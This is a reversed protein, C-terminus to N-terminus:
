GSKYLSCLIKPYDDEFRKPKAGFGNSYYSPFYKGKGVGKQTGLMGHLFYTINLIFSLM